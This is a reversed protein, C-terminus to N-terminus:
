KIVCECRSGSNSLYENNKKSFVYESNNFTNNIYDDVLSDFDRDFDVNEFEKIEDQLVKIRRKSEEINRNEREIERKCRDTTGNLSSKLREKERYFMDRVDIVEVEPIKDLYIEVYDVVGSFNMSVSKGMFTQPYIHHRIPVKISDYNLVPDGVILYYTYDGSSCFAFDQLKYKRVILKGPKFKDLDDFDKQLSEILKNKEAIAKELDKKRQAKMQGFTAMKYQGM